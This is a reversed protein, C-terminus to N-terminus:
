PTKEKELFQKLALLVAPWAKEVADYYWDWHEGSNQPYPGQQLHLMTGEATKETEVFLNLPGLFPREASLYMYDGIHLRAGTDIKKIIGTSIYKVGSDSIGWGLTYIGGEKLQVISKEVGWWVKLMVEDTFAQIIREPVAKIEITCDVTRM